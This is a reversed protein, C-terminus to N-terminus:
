KLKKEAMFYFCCIKYGSYGYMKDLGSYTYGLFGKKLCLSKLYKTGYSVLNVGIHKGRESHKVTTCGVSGTDKAETENSIILTGVIEDGKEGVLVRQSGNGYLNLDKYYGSFSKEADDTCLIIKDIDNKTAFRYKIGNTVNNENININTYDSLNMKMDFCNCDWFHYYGRKEFFQKAEDTISDPIDTKGLNENIVMKNTPVGPVIYDFGAGIRLTIFGNDKVYKESMELLMSGNGKKQYKKDVCLLLITNKNIVSVGVLTNDHRVKFIKNEKNSLIDKIKKRERVIFSMNNDILNLIENVM